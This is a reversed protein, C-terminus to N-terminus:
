SRNRLRTTRARGFARSPTTRREGLFITRLTGEDRRGALGDLASALRARDERERNVAAAAEFLSISEEAKGLALAAYGEFLDVDKADGLAWLREAEDV